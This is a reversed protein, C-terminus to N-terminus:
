GVHRQVRRLRGLCRWQVGHRLNSRRLRRLRRQRRVLVRERVAHRLLRFWLLYVRMGERRLPEQGSGKNKGCHDHRQKRQVRLLCPRGALRRLLRPVRAVHSRLRRLRRLCRRPVGHRVNSRRLRQLRRQQRVLVGERVAHRLLCLRRLHGC